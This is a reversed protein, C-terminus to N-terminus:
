FMRVAHEFDAKARNEDGSTLYTQGRGVFHAPTPHRNIGDSYAAISATYQGNHGLLYARELDVESALRDDDPAAAPEFAPKVPPSVYRAFHARLTAVDPAAASALILTPQEPLTALPAPLYDHEYAWEWTFGCALVPLVPIQTNVAAELEERVPDFPDSLGYVASPTLLAIVAASERLQTLRPAATQTRQDSATWTTVPIGEQNLATAFAMSIVKNTWHRYTLYLMM